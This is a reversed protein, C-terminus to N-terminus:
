YVEKLYCEKCYVKEARESSVTSMISKGCNDCNRETLSIRNRKKQRAKHRCLPCKLPAPIGNQAYFTLEQPILKYSKECATCTLNLDSKAIEEAERWKYGAALIEEKSLPFEDMALTDNYAHPCLKKPFFEGYEGTKRMHEIIRAKLNRYEEESYQKNFICFKKRKLGVCGFVEDCASCSFCYEINSNNTTCTSCFKMNYANDGSSASQYVLEAKSGWSTYDMSDKVPGILRACYKCDELDRSDFCWSSNKSNYLHDGLSNQNQEEHLDRLPQTKFFEESKKRLEEIGFATNLNFGAKMALYEEKSYQKNFIMYQKQRQNVCAICDQCAICDKLFYSEHCSKCDQSYKLRQCSTCDICEYCLESEFITSCDFTNKCYFIRNSFYCDEDYDAEGILYCNKLYGTCNTFDSNELTDGIVFVAMQPVKNRLEEFQEFFPRNFDFDMGHIMADWDDSWWIKQDYVPFPVSESYQSVIKKGSFDCNRYFLNKSNRENLRRLLRCKPCNQPEPVAIRKYFVLDEDTIEFGVDCNQCSKSIM